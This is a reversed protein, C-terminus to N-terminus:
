IEGDVAPAGQSQTKIGSKSELVCADLPYKSNAPRMEPNQAYHRCARWSEWENEIANALSKASLIDQANHFASLAARAIALHQDEPATALKSQLANLVTRAVVTAEDGLIKNDMWFQFRSVIDQATEGQQLRQWLEEFTETKETEM